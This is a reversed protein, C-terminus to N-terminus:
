KDLIEIQQKQKANLANAKDLEARLTKHQTQLEELEKKTSDPLDDNGDKPMSDGGSLIKIKDPPQKGKPHIGGGNGVNITHAQIEASLKHLMDADWFDQVTDNVFAGQPVFAVHNFM